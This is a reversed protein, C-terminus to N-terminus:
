RWVRGARLANGAVCPQNGTVAAHGSRSQVRGFFKTGFGGACGVDSGAFDSEICRERLSVVIEYVHRSGRRKNWKVAAGVHIPFSVLGGPAINQKQVSVQRPPSEVIHVIPVIRACAIDSEPESRGKLIGVQRISNKKRLDKGFVFLGQRVKRDFLSLDPSPLEGCERERVSM